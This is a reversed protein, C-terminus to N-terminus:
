PLSPAVSYIILYAVFWLHNNPRRRQPWGDSDCWHGSATVYKAYSIDFCQGPDQRLATAAELFKMLLKHPPVIWSGALTSRHCICAWVRGIPSSAMHEDKTPGHGRPPAKLNLFLL